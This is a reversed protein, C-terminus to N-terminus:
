DVNVGKNFLKNCLFYFVISYLIYDVLGIILITIFAKQSLVEATLEPLIGMIAFVIVFIAVWIVLLKKM